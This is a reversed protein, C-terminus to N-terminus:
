EAAYRVHKEKLLNRIVHPEKQRRRLHCRVTGILEAKNDVPTEGKLAFSTGSVHDSRLGNRRGLLDNGAGAESRECDPPLGGGALARTM